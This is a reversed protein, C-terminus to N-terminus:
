WVDRIIGDTIGPSGFSVYNNFRCPLNDISNVRNFYIRQGNQGYDSVTVDLGDIYYVYAGAPSKSFPVLNSIDIKSTIM